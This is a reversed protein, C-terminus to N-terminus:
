LNEEAWGTGSRTGAPGFYAFVIVGSQSQIANWSGGGGYLSVPTSGDTSVTSTGGGGSGYGLSYYDSTSAAGGNGGALTTANYNSGAGGAGGGGGGAFRGNFLDVYGVGGLNGSASSGGDPYFFGQLAPSSGGGANGALNTLTTNGGNAYDAGGAGVIGVMSTSLTITFASLQGAGGGGGGGDGGSGGGGGIAQIYNCATSATGGWVPATWTGSSTFTVKKARHTTFGGYNGYTTNISSVAKVRMYYTTGNALGTVSVSTSTWSTGTATSPTPTLETFTGFAPDTSYQFRITTSYGKANVQASFTASDQNYAPVAISQIEPADKIVFSTSSTGFGAGLIDRSQMTTTYRSSGTIKMSWVKPTLAFEISNILMDKSFPTGLTPTRKFTIRSLLELSLLTQWQVTTASLGVEFKSVSPPDIIGYRLLHRALALAETETSTQSDVTLTHRGNNKISDPDFLGSAFSQGGVGYKVVVDNRMNDGDFWIDIDDRYRFGSTGIDTFTVASTSGAFFLRSTAKLVGDRKVYLHGSETVIAKQISDIIPENAEPVGSISATNPDSVEWRSINYEYAPVAPVTSASKNFDTLMMLRNLRAGTTETQSGQGFGYINAIETATLVKNFCSVEQFIGSAFALNSTPFFVLGASVAGTGSTQNVGDVYITAIGTSFKYTFLFHHAITSSYTNNVSQVATGNLTFVVYGTAAVIAELTHTGGNLLFLTRQDAGNGASWVSITIDGSTQTTSTSKAFYSNEINVSTGSLGMGLFNSSIPTTANSTVFSVNQSASGLDKLVTTGSPESCRYYHVPLLSKTYVEALDGKLETTGILALIDFLDLTVTSLKGTNEWSVPFGSIFGRFIPYTVGNAIGQIRIQRRPKLKGLYPSLANFPDYQRSNNNLVVTGTSVFDESFDDSRGRLISVSQVDGTVATWTPSAIFPGDDFAIEVILTPVAM